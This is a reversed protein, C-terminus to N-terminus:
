KLTQLSFYLKLTFTIFIVFFVGESRVHTKAITYCGKIASNYVALTTTKLLLLFKRAEVLNLWVVPLTLDPQALRWIKLVIEAPLSVSTPLLADILPQLFAELLLGRFVAIDVLFNDVFSVDKEFSTM